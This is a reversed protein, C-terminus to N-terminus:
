RSEVSGKHQVSLQALIKRLTLLCEIDAQVNKDASSKVNEVVVRIRTALYWEYMLLLHHSLSECGRINGLESSEFLLSSFQVIGQDRTEDLVGGQGLQFAMLEDGIHDLLTDEGDRIWSVGCEDLVGLSFVNLDEKNLFENTTVCPTVADDIVEKGSVEIVAFGAPQFGVIFCHFGSPNM